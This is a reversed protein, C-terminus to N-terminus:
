KDGFRIKRRFVKDGNTAYLFDGSVACSTLPKSPQPKTVLGCERGTPDFVQVGMTSAVFWRGMKDTGMGDGGSAAALPPPESFRFEGKPDIPRRLTMTPAKGGLAGDAEMRFAWVHGGKYDSVALTGGDPSLAIGNPGTIGTDAVSVKKTQLDVMTVQQKGTETFYVRGRATVVLDNPQVDTALVEAEPASAGEHASAPIKVLRKQSGQCGVLHAPDGPVFKMGSVAHHNLRSKKGDPTIRYLGAATGRLDCFYLGGANDPCPADTFEHGEAVVQWDEGPILLRHLTLDGGLDQALLTSHMPAYMLIASLLLRKVGSPIRKPAKRTLVPSDAPQRESRPYSDRSKHSSGGGYESPVGRRPIRPASSGAGAM